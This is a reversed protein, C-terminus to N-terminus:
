PGRSTSTCSRRPRVAADPGPLNRRHALQLSDGHRYGAVRTGTPCQAHILALNGASYQPFRAMTRLYAAFSEETLIADIGRELTELAQKVRDEQQPEHHHTQFEGRPM